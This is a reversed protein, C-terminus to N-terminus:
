SEAQKTTNSGAHPLKATLGSDNFDVVIRMAGPHRTITVRYGSMDGGDGECLSSFIVAGEKPLPDAISATTATVLAFLVVSKLPKKM